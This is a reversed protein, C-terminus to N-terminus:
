DESGHYQDKQQFTDHFHEPWTREFESMQERGVELSDQVTVTAHGVRGNVIGEPHSVSDLPNSSMELKHQIGESDKMDSSIRAQAEEKHINQVNGGDDDIMKSLNSELKSCIHLNVAWTKLTEPQLTFGIIGGKGHGYRM